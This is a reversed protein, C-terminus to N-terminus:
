GYWSKSPYEKDFDWLNASKSSWQFTPMRLKTVKDNKIENLKTRNYFSLLGETSHTCLFLFSSIFRDLPHRIIAFHTINTTQIIIKYYTKLFVKIEFKKLFSIIIQRKACLDSACIALRRRNDACVTSSDPVGSKTLFCIRM